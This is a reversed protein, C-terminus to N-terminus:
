KTPKRFGMSVEQIYDIGISALDVGDSLLEKCHTKNLHATLIGFDQTELLYKNRLEKADEGASLRVYDKTTRFATGYETKFSDVGTENSIDIMQTELALMEEKCQKEFDQYEKRKIDLEDRINRYEKILDKINSM